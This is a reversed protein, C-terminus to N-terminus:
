LDSLYEIAEGSKLLQEEIVKLTADIAGAVTNARIATTDYFEDEIFISVMGRRESEQNIGTLFAPEILFVQKAFVTSLFTGAPNAYVEIKLEVHSEGVRMPELYLTENLRSRIRM